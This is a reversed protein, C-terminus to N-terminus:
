DALSTSSFVSAAETGFPASACLITQFSSITAHACARLWRSDGPAVEQARKTQATAGRDASGPSRRVFRVFGMIQFYGLIDSSPLAITFSLQDSLYDLGPGAHLVDEMHQMHYVQPKPCGWLGKFAEFAFWM